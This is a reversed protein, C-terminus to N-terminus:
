RGPGHFGDQCAGTSARSIVHNQNQFAPTVIHAAAADLECSLAGLDVGLHEGLDVHVERYRALGNGLGGYLAGFGHAM